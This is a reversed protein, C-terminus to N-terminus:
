CICYRQNSSPEDISHLPIRPTPLVKDEYNNVKDNRNSDNRNTNPLNRNPHPQPAKRSPDMRNYVNTDNRNVSNESRNTEDGKSIYTNVPHNPISGPVPGNKRLVENRKEQKAQDAITWASPSNPRYICDYKTKYEHIM